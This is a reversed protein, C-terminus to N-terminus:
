GGQPIARFLEPQYVERMWQRAVTARREWGAWGGHGPRFPRRLKQCCYLALRVQKRPMAFCLGVKLYDQLNIRWKLTDWEVKGIRVGLFSFLERFDKVFGMSGSYSLRFKEAISGKSVSISGDGDMLGAVLPCVLDKPVKPLCSKEPSVRNLWLGLKGGAKEKVFYYPLLEGELKWNRRGYHYPSGVTSLALAICDAFARDKVQWGVRPTSGSWNLTGDSLYAGLLYALASNVDMSRRRVPGHM